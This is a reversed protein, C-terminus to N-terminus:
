TDLEIRNLEMSIHSPYPSGKVIHILEQIYVPNPNVM